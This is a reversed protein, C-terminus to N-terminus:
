STVAVFSLREESQKAAWERYPALEDITEESVSVLAVDAQKLLFQAEASAAPARSFLLVVDYRQRVEQLLTHFVPRGLLEMSHRSSGGTPLIDYGGEKYVPYESIKGELYQRLGPIHDPPVMGRFGCQIVLVKLGKLSLLEALNASYDPHEGGVLAALVGKPASSILSAGRRLTELDASNLQELSSEAGPSITGALPCRHLKLSDASVPLGQLLGRCLYFGFTGGVGLFAGLFIFLLLRPSKPAGPTLAIDLPKSEIQQLHHNVNKSEVLQTVGEIMKKALEMKLKLQNELRWKEPLDVLSSQLDKLKGEILEKEKKMLDVSAEKLSVLKEELLKVRLKQLEVTQDIYHGIHRKQLKLEERFRDQEKSTRNKEDRLQLLIHNAKEVMNKTVSDDLLAGLSSLEFDPSQMQDRIFLLERINAQTLDLEKSCELYLLQAAKPDLGQFDTQFASQYSLNEEVIKQKTQLLHEAQQLYGVLLSKKTALDQELDKRSEEKASAIATKVEQMQRVWLAVIGKPDHFLYPTEPLEKGEQVDVLLKQTTKLQESVKRKESLLREEGRQTIMSTSRRIGEFRRLELDVDFLKAVYFDKPKSVMQIEQEFTLFGRGGLNQKAYCVQEQLVEDLKNELELQREGLYALQARAHEDSDEKLYDKYTLMLTNIVGAALHRNRNGYTIELVTPDLKAPKILVSQSLGGAVGEVPQVQVRYMKGLKLSSPVGELTWQLHSLKLEEGVKGEAVLERKENLLQYSDPLSFCLWFSEAEEGNYKVKRFTFADVEKLGGFLGLSLNERINQFKKQWKGPPNISVQLGLEEVVRGMMRRSLMLSTGGQDGGGMGIGGLLTSLASVSGTSSGAQKFTAMASYKPEKTLAFFCILTAAIVGARVLKKRVRWFLRKVDALCLFIEDSTYLSM